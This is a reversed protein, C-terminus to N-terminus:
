EVGVLYPYHPQNGHVVEVEVGLDARLKSAVESASSETEGEGAYLTVLAGPRDQVMREVCARVAAGVSTEAVSLEGDILGIPQGEAVAVGGISTARAAHTIEAARV